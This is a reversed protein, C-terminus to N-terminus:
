PQTIAAMIADHFAPRFGKIKENARSPCVRNSLLVIVVDAVPDCWIPTGTSGLHGFTSASMRRGASSDTASKGDWGLRHTGGDRAALASKLTAESLLPTGSKEYETLEDTDPLFVRECAVGPIANFLEYMTHFGLNAMGIGHTNPYCLAIRLEASRTVVYGEEAALKKKYSETIKRSM